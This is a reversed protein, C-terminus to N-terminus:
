GNTFGDRRMFISPVNKYKLIVPKVVSEEVTVRIVYREKGNIEYKVFSIKMAPRPTLHENVQNNFYNRENDAGIRDFGILKNSKDEVGIYFNGGAANAFGAITKEQKESRQKKETIKPFIRQQRQVRLSQKLNKKM